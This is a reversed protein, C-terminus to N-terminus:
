GRPSFEIEVLARHLRKYDEFLETTARCGPCAWHFLIAQHKRALGNKAYPQQIFAEVCCSPYGFFDGEFRRTAASKDIVRRDFRAAYVQLREPVRAFLTEELELGSQAFRKVVGVALGLSKLEGRLGPALTKEWRGAPKVGELILLALFALQFDHSKLVSLGRRM